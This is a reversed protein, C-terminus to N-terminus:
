RAPRQAASRPAVVPLQFLLDLIETAEPPGKIELAIEETTLRLSLDLFPCCQKEREVFGRLLTKLESSATFRLRVGVPLRERSLMARSADLLMEGTRVIEAPPLSCALEADQDM